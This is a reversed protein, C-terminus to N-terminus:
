QDLDEELIAYIDCDVFQGKNNKNYKRLRGEYKMGAKIMVKGSAPNDIDHTAFVRKFGCEYILFKIIAKLAETMIGQNWYRRAICYGIECREKDNFFEVVSISGIVRGYNKPVIAWKYGELNDYCQVWGNIIEKTIDINKHPLWTLYKTVESDNAWNHFMDEADNLEFRRLILRETEIKLTGKHNPM